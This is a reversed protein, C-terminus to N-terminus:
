KTYVIYRDAAKQEVTVFQVLVEDGSSVAVGIVCSRTYLKTNELVQYKTDDSNDQVCWTASSGFYTITSGATNSIASITFNGSTAVVDITSDSIQLDLSGLGAQSVTIYLITAKGGSVCSVAVMGSRSESSENAEVSFKIIGDDESIDYIWDVNADFGLVGVAYCTVDYTGGGQAASVSDSNLEFIPAGECEQTFVMTVSTSFEADATSTAVVTVIASRSAATMNDSDVSVSFSEEGDTYSVDCWDSDSQVSYVVGAIDNSTITVEKSEGQTFANYAFSYSVDSLYLTGNDSAGQILVFTATVASTPSTIVIEAIRSSYNENQEIGSLVVMEDSKSATLWTASSSVVWDSVNTSVTFSYDSSYDYAIEGYAAGLTIYDSHAGQYIVINYTADGSTILVNATRSSGEVSDVIIGITQEGSGSLTTTNTDVFRCWSSDSEASWKNDSIVTIYYIASESDVEIMQVTEQTDPDVASAFDLPTENCGVIAFAMAMSALAITSRKFFQIMNM